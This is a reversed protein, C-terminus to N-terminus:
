PELLNRAEDAAAVAAGPLVSAPDSRMDVGITLGEYKAPDAESDALVAPLSAADVVFDVPTDFLALRPDPQSLTAQSASSTLAAASIVAVSGAAALLRTSPVCRM